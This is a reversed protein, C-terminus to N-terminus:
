DTTTTTDGLDQADAMFGQIKRVYGRTERYPPIGKHRKVANPGANYSALALPVNGDNRDLMMRLYKTGAFINDKPNFPDIKADLEKGLEKLTIPTLQMLGRAGARSRALPTFNSAAKIVAARDSSFGYAPRMM